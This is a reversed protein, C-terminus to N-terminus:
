RLAAQGPSPQTLRFPPRVAAGGRPMAPFVADPAASLDDRFLEQLEERSLGAPQSVRLGPGHGSAGRRLAFLTLVFRRRMAPASRLFPLTPLVSFEGL